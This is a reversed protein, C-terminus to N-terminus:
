EPWTWQGTAAWKLATVSIIADRNLPGYIHPFRITKIDPAEETHGDPPSPTEYKLPSTLRAEAITYVLLPEALTPFYRNAIILLVDLQATCHIFSEEAFAAPMYHKDALHQQHYSQPVLHYIRTTM